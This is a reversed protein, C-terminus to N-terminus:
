RLAAIIVNASVALQYIFLGAGVSCSKACAVGM